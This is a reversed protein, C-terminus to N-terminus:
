SIPYLLIAVVKNCVVLWCTIGVGGAIGTPFAVLRELPTIWKSPLVTVPELYYKWILSIMLAAQSVYFVISVVWKIKSLQATRSKVHTKLQDTLKNIKRELRAYKAFEDMMSITSLEQRMSQIESRMSYEQAADKQLLRSVLSSFSPLLIKFLNCLFVAILVLLWACSAAM